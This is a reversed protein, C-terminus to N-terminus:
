KAAERGCLGGLECYGCAPALRLTTGDFTSDSKSGDAGPSRLDGRALEGRRTQLEVLAAAWTARAEHMGPAYGGALGSRPGTVLEQSRLLFYGVGVDSRGCGERRMAAYAALQIATGDRLSEIYKTKGWKLDIVFDPTSLVRDLRGEIAQGLVSTKQTMETATVEAGGEALLRTLERASDAVVRRLTARQVQHAPLEIAECLQAAQTDFIEIAKRAAQDPDAPATAFVQALLNHALSGLLRNDLLAPGDALGPRLRGRYHLAWSYSCGILRELSSPSEVDRLQLPSGTAVELAPKV